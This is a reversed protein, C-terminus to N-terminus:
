GNCTEKIVKVINADPDCEPDGFERRVVEKREESLRCPEALEREITQSLDKLDCRVSGKTVLEKRHNTYDIGGYHMLRWGNVIVLPIDMAM